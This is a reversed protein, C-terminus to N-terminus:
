IIAANIQSSYMYNLPLVFCTRMGRRRIENPYRGFRYTLSYIDFSKRYPYKKVRICHCGPVSCTFTLDICAHYEKNLDLLLEHHILKYIYHEIDIPLTSLMYLQCIHM